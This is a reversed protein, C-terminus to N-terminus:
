TGIGGPAESLSLSRPLGHPSARAQPLVRSFAPGPARERQCLREMERESEKEKESQVLAPVSDVGVPLVESSEGVGSLWPEFHLFMGSASLLRTRGESM